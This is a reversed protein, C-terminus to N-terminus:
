WGTWYTNGPGGFGDDPGLWGDKTQHELIYYIWKNVQGQLDVNLSTAKTDGSANLHASLPVVGNLWYPGREHGAGSHDHSGGIWVSDQIDDWFLELHGAQGNAMLILQTQLWGTPKVAGLKIPKFKLPLLGEAAAHRVGATANETIPVSSYLLSIFARPLCSSSLINFNGSLMQPPIQDKLHCQLESFSWSKCKKSDVMCLDFCQEASKANPTSYTGGPRDIGVHGSRWGAASAAGLLYLCSMMMM